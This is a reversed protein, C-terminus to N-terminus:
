LSLDPIQNFCSVGGNTGSQVFSGPYTELIELDNVKQDEELGQIFCRVGSQSLEILTPVIQLVRVAMKPM